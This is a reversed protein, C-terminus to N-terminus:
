YNLLINYNMLIRTHEDQKQKVEKVDDALESIAQMILNFQENSM